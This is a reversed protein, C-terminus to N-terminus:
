ICGYENLENMYDDADSAAKCMCLACFAVMFSVGFTIGSIVLKAPVAVRAVTAIGYAVAADLGACGASTGTVVAINRAPSEQRDNSHGM